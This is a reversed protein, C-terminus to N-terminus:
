PQNTKKNRSKLFYYPYLDPIFDFFETFNKKWSNIAKKHRKNRRREHYFKQKGFREKKKGKGKKLRPM